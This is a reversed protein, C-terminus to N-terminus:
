ASKKAAAAPTAEEGENAAAKEEWSAYSRDVAVPSTYIMGPLRDPFFAAGVRPPMNMLRNQHLIPVETLTYVRRDEWQEGGHSNARVSETKPVSIWKTTSMKEAWEAVKPDMTRYVFKVQTNTMFESVLQRGDVRRDDPAALNESSQACLLLNADFGAITALSTAVEESAMFKLEDVAVVCHTKRQESLRAIEALLEALYIRSALKILKDDISGRVYVVADNLLCTEIVHGSRENKAPAFTWVKQWEKLSDRLSSLEQQGEGSQKEYEVVFQLMKKVSGDTRALADDLLAREKVKYVDADTGGADLNFARTVRARRGRLEGGKFPHWVGKGTPNLDLYVFPRGAKKAENQMLYPLYKDGKPDIYFLTQGNRIIQQFMAQLIIGKGFRTPGLIAHHIELFLNLALYIPQRFADLGYFMFGPKFYEEPVYDIAEMSSAEHRADSLEEETQTIRRSRLWASVHPMVTRDIAYRVVLGVIGAAAVYPGYLKLRDIGWEVFAASAVAGPRDTSFCFLAYSGFPVLILFIGLAKVAYRRVYLVLHQVMPANDARIEWPVPHVVCVVFLLAGLIVWYGPSSWRLWELLGTTIWPGLGNQFM